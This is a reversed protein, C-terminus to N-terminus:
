CARSIKNTPTADKENKEDVPRLVSEVSAAHSPTRNRSAPPMDETVKRASFALSRRCLGQM